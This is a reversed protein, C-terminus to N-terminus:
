TRAPRDHLDQRSSQPPPRRARDSRAPLPGRVRDRYARVAQASPTAPHADVGSQRRGAVGSAMARVPQLRRAGPTSFAEVLGDPAHAEVRLGPALRAVGQGHMSNVEFAANGVIGALLGGAVPHVRIRPGYQESPRSARRGRPPRRLRGVEQVAQHLSGGLAVNVEQAGRCIALLPIGRALLARCWPWRGPTASRTWRCRPTTCRSRRFARPHVNSPSGTLLVGDALALLTTSSPEARRAAGGAALRRGPAGRRRVQAGAVHFPHEGLMRNCAPLLVIPLTNM